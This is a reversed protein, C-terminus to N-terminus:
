LHALIRGLQPLFKRVPVARNERLARERLALLAEDCQAHRVGNLTWVADVRIRLRTELLARVQFLHAFGHMDGRGNASSRRQHMAQLHAISGALYAHSGPSRRVDAPKPPPGAARASRGVARAGATQPRARSM